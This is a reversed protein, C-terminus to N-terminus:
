VGFTLVTYKVFMVQAELHAELLSTFITLYAGIIEREHM